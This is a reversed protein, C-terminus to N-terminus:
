DGFLWSSLGALVGDEGPKRMEYPYVVGARGVRMVLNRGAVADYAMGKPAEMILRNHSLVLEFKGGDATCGRVLTGPVTLTRSADLSDPIAAGRRTAVAKSVMLMAEDAVFKMVQVHIDLPQGPRVGVPYTVATPLVQLLIIPPMVQGEVPISAEHRYGSMNWSGRMAAVAVLFVMARRATRLGFRRCAPGGEPRPEPPGDALAATGRDSQFALLLFLLGLALYVARDTLEGFVEVYWILGRFFLLLSATMSLLASGSRRGLRLMALALIVFMGQCFWRITQSDPDGLYGGGHISLLYAGFLVTVGGWGVLAVGSTRAGVRIRWRGVLLQVVGVAMNVLLADTMWSGAMGLRLALISAANSSVLAAGLLALMGHSLAQGAFLAAGGMVVQSWGSSPLHFARGLEFLALGFVVWTLLGLARATAPARPRGAADPGIGVKAGHMGLLGLGMLLLARHRSELEILDVWLFQALALFILYAALTGFLDAVTPPAVSPDLGEQYQEAAM